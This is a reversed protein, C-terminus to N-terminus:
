YASRKQKKTATLICFGHHINWFLSLCVTSALAFLVGCVLHRLVLSTLSGVKCLALATVVGFLHSKASLGLWNKVFLGLSCSLNDQTQFAFLALGLLLKADLSGLVKLQSLLCCSRTVLILCCYPIM